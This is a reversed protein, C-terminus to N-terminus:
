RCEKLREAQWRELRYREQLWAPTVEYNGNDLQRIMRDEPIVTVQRSACGNLLLVSLMLTAVLRRRTLGRWTTKM